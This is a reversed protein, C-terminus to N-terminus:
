QMAGFDIQTKGDIITAFKEMENVVLTGVYPGMKRGTMKLFKRFIEAQEATMPIDVKVRTPNEDTEYIRKM